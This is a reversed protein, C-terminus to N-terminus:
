GQLWASELTRVSYTAITLFFFFASALSLLALKRINPNWPFEVLTRDTWYFFLITVFLYGFSESLLETM